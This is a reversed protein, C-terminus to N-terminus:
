SPEKLQFNRQARLAAVRNRRNQHEPDEPDYAKRIQDFLNNPDNHTYQKRLDALRALHGDRATKEDVHYVFDPNDPHITMYQEHLALGLLTDFDYPSIGYEAARWALLDHPFHVAHKPSGDGKDLGILWVPQQANTDGSVDKVLVVTYNTTNM